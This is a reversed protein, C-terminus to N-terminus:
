EKIACLDMHNGISITIPGMKACTERLLLPKQHGPIIKFNLRHQEGKHTCQLTYEGLVTMITGDYLKLKAASPELLPDGHQKINCLDAFTMINCTAGTDLQCEITTGGMEVLVHLKTFFKTAESHQVTGVYGLQYVADDSEGDLVEGVLHIRQRSQRTVQKCVSQFHNGKGCKRCM